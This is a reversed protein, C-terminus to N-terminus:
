SQDHHTDTIGKLLIQPFYVPAGNQRPLHQEIALHNLCGTKITSQTYKKDQRM